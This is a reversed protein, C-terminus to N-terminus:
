YLSREASRSTQDSSSIRTHPSLAVTVSGSPSEHIVTVAAAVGDLTAVSTMRTAPQGEGIRLCGLRCHAAHIEGDAAALDEPKEPGAARALGRRLLEEDAQQAAVAPSAATHPM